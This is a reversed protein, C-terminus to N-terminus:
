QYQEIFLNTLIHKLKHHSVNSIDTKINNAITNWCTISKHSISNLGYRTTNKSPVFLCGLNASRTTVNFYMHNLKFYHDEFCSPLSNTLYDHIFLYNQIKIVDCLKIIGHNIYLPNMNANHNEFNIISIARNQLKSITDFHSSKNQGWIQCGYIM